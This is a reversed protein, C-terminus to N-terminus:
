YDRINSNYSTYWELINIAVEDHWIIQLCGYNVLAYDVTM